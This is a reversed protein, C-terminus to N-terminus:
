GCSTLSNRIRAEPAIHNVQTKYDAHVYLQLFPRWVNVVSGRLSNGDSWCQQRAVAASTTYRPSYRLELECSAALHAGATAHRRPTPDPDSIGVFARVIKDARQTLTRAICSSPLWSFCSNRLIASTAASSFTDSRFTQRSTASPFSRLCLNSLEVRM